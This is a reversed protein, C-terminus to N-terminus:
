VTDQYNIVIESAKLKKPSIHKYFKGNAYLDFEKTNQNISKILVSIKPTKFIGDDLSLVKFLSM